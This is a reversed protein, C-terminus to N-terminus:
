RIRLAPGIRCRRRAADSVTGPQGQIQRCVPQSRFEPDALPRRGHVLVVDMKPWAKELPDRFCRLSRGDGGTMRVEMYPQRGRRLLILVAVLTRKIAKATISNTIAEIPTNPVVLGATKAATVIPRGMSARMAIATDIRTPKITVLAMPGCGALYEGHRSTGSNPQWHRRNDRDAQRAMSKGPRM